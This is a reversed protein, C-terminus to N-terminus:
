HTFEVYDQCIRWRTSRFIWRRCSNGCLGYIRFNCYSNKTILGAQLYLQM